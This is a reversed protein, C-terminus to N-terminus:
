TELENHRTAANNITQSLIFRYSNDYDKSTFIWSNMVNSLFVGVEVVQNNFVQRRRFLIKNRIVL